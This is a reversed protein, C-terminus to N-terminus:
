KKKRRLVRKIAAGALFLGATRLMTKGLAQLPERSVVALMGARSTRACASHVAGSKHIHVEM